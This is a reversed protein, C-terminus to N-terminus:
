EHAAYDIIKGRFVRYVTVTYTLILPMVILGAGWFMFGLSEPPAAGDDITIAFPIMYPWFSAALTAFAAAFIVATALIPALDLRRRAGLILVAGAVVGIVPFAALYPREIWRDMIRLQQVLASVYALVLFGFVGLSLKPLQRYAEDRLRGECKAILWGAGLMMYGLCLGVGCLCAFPSFWGFPGGDYQGGSMPLGRALAGVTLGQIFTAILSGGFFGWDWLPRSWTAKYRFEFAVGRLILAGLMLTIPLYFASLLTAYVRPFCAFLITGALVLWTENGDWVPSIASLMQRRHDQRRTLGFLIGVGLDFGDLLVYLLTALVLMATWFLIM